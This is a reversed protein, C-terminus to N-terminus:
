QNNNRDTSSTRRVAASRRRRLLWGVFLVLLLILPSWPVLAVLVLAVAKGFETLRTVSLQFTRVVETRFSPSLPPVYNKLEIATITVTSLETMNSLYRLRGQMQEIEGRVRRLEREVALIDELKGT